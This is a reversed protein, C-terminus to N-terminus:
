PAPQPPPETETAHRVLSYRQQKSKKDWLVRLCLDGFRRDRAAGLARGLRIRQSRAGKDGIISGLLERQTALDLLQGADVPLDQYKEWWAAIFARWEQGEADAAEYLDELDSLFGPIGLYALIGGIVQAWEEFSGLTRKAPPRGAAVWARILILAARILRARNSAVWTMLPHHQFSEPDRLWPRDTKADLRIRVCRRAIELSLNPNNGTAIWIAKNPLEVMQSHGLVRDTWTEATLAAALQASRISRVNDLLVLPPGALLCATISKRTEEESRGLTMIGPSQNVLAFNALVASLLGKGSGPSPAEVLHLPTCGHIMRRAFPLLIAAMAHARDSESVFPFDGLLDELLLALAERAEDASPVEPIPGPDLGSSKHHWLRASPHYGARELLAGERDFVPVSVISDLEPLDSRPNPIMDRAVDSDPAGYVRNDEYVRVWRAIRALHGFAIAQDVLEIRPAEQGSRLRVLAGSRLFLKPPDNARLVAAWADDIVLILDRNNVQIEPLNSDRPVQAPRMSAAAELAQLVTRKVYPEGKARAGGDPRHWLATALEDPDTVGLLALKLALSFDYGSSSTDLQKGDPGIVTKGKGTFLSRLRTKSTLLARMWPSLETGIEIPKSTGNGGPSRAVVNSGSGGNGHTALPMKLIAELLNADERREFADLCRSLRHPREPTPEGKVSVTGIVKIIRSLNYISDIAVDDSAFKDRIRAEFRKLRDRMEERQEAPIALPPVAFWLQCGNGSMNRVPRTFGKEALWDAIHDACAVARGLEEDTAATDKPRVPDIDIVLATLWDIDDDRAGAKLRKLRNPAKRLLAPPRPQIGAYVNGNGNAAACAAVFADEQDFYGIGAIGRAPTIVRLETIGRGAHALFRYTARVEAEAFRSVTM